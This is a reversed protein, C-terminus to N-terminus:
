SGQCVMRVVAYHPEIDGYYFDARANFPKGDTGSLTGKPFSVHISQEGYYQSADSLLDEKKDEPYYTLFYKNGEGLDFYPHSYFAKDAVITYGKEKGKTTLTLAATGGKKSKCTFAPVAPIGASTKAMREPDSYNKGYYACDPSGPHQRCFEQCEPPHPYISCYGPCGPLGSADNCDRTEAYPAPTPATRAAVAAAKDGAADGLQGLSTGAYAGSTLALMAALIIIRKM